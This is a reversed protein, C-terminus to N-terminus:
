DATQVAPKALRRMGLLATAAGCVLVVWWVSRYAGVGDGPMWNATLGITLAVGFVSALRQFTQQVSMAVAYMTPPLGAVVLSYIAPFALGGGLGLLVAAIAWATFSPSRGAAILLVAGGAAGLVGSVVLVAGEGVREAMRGAVPSVVAIMVPLILFWLGAKLTAFGWVFTLFQFGGFFIAFFGVGFAFAGVAAMRFTPYRFLHLQLLPRPVRQSRQVLAVLLVLGVMVVGITGASGIGWAPAKVVGLTVLSVGVILMAVSPRDPFAPADPDSWERFILAGGTFAIVGIPVSIWFAWRWGGAGILLAGLSPGVASAITALGSWASIALTRRSAPFEDLIMAVTAPGISSGGVAQFVRGVILIPVTPALGGILSGCTFLALGILTVKKHGSRRAMVGAPVFVAASVITYVSLVWSMDAPSVRPFDARLSPFAVNMISVNLATQFSCMSGIFLVRWARRTIVDGAVADDVDSTVGGVDDSTVGGVDDNTVGGADDNTM